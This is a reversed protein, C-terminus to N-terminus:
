DSLITEMHRLYVDKEFLIVSNRKDSIEIVLNCNKSFKKLEELEENSLNKTLRLRKLNKM